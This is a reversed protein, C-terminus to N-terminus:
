NLLRLSIIFDLSKGKTTEFTSRRERDQGQPTAMSAFKLTDIAKAVEM